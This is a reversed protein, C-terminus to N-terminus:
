LWGPWVSSINRGRVIRHSDFPAPLNGINSCLRSSEIPRGPAVREALATLDINHADVYDLMWRTLPTTGIPKRKKM